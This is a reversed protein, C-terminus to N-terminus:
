SILQKSQIGDAVTKSSSGMVLNWNWALNTSSDPFTLKATNWFVWNPIPFLRKLAMVASGFATSQNHVSGLKVLNVFYLL